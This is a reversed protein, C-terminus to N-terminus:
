GLLLPPTTQDVPRTRRSWYRVVAICLGGLLSGVMTGVILSDSPAIAGGCAAGFGIAAAELISFPRHFFQSNKSVDM